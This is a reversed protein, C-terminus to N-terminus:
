AEEALATIKVFQDSSHAMIQGVLQAEDHQNSHLLEKHYEMLLEDIQEIDNDDVDNLEVKM